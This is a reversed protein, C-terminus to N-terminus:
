QTWLALGWCFLGVGVIPEMWFRRGSFPEWVDRGTLPWYWTAPKPQGTARMIFRNFHYDGVLISGYLSCVLGVLDVWNWDMLMWIAALYCLHAGTSAMQQNQEINHIPPVTVANNYVLANDAGSYAYRVAYLGLAVIVLAYIM